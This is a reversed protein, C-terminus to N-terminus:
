IIYKDVQMQRRFWELSRRDRNTMAKYPPMNDMLDRGVGVTYDAPCSVISIEFPEWNRAIDCPGTFRGDGSVKGPLVEEWSGVMYGTSVGRLTKNKVKQYILESPEDEDFEIEAYARFDEVRATIIKGVVYDRKHNFLVCGAALLRELKIAGESHDLVEKGWYRTYPEESSFSLQFRRENGEAERFEATMFERYFINGTKETPNRAQRLEM